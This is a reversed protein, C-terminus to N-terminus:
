EQLNCCSSHIISVHVKAKQVAQSNTADAKILHVDLLGSQDRDCHSYFEKARVVKAAALRFEYMTVPARGSQGQGDAGLVMKATALSSAHAVNRRLALSYGGFHSVKRGPRFNVMARTLALDSQSKDLQEKLLTARARHHRASAQARELDRKLTAIDEEKQHLVVILDEASM